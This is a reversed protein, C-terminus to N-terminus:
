KKILKGLPMIYLPEEEKTMNVFIKLRFDDFAGMVCTGIGLSVVQLYVNEASHGLEMCVYRERGRNGYKKTTRSFVASYILSAAAQKIMPNKNTLLYLEERKDEKSLQILKHGEPKYKYIGTELGDVNTALLYIELPYTAGASPATKLGGRLWDPMGERHYTVGYAAWLIQSIENLTLAKNLYRRTSRRNKLTHEISVNSDFKPKPLKIITTESHANPLKEMMLKRTTRIKQLMKKYKIEDRLIDLDKDEEIWKDDLWELEIARNLNDLARSNEGALAWSCAADYFDRRSPTGVKFAKEALEASIKYKGERYLKQSETIMKQYSEALLLISVSSILLLTIITKKYM